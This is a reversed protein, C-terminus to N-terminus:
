IISRQIRAFKQQTAASSQRKRSRPSTRPEDAVAVVIGSPKENSVGMTKAFKRREKLRKSFSQASLAEAIELRAQMLEKANADDGGHERLYRRILNHQALRLGKAYEKMVAPVEIRDQHHPGWIWIMELNDPDYAVRVAVGNGYTRLIPLMEDTVYKLGHLTIGDHRLKRETTVALNLAIEQASPPLHPTFGQASEHWKKWPTTGIGQHPTQMYVDLLWKEFVHSFESITLVSHKLPDYDGRDTFKAFSTGPMKHVFSYNVTKLFREITGKFRPQRAPCFQLQIRLDFCALGVPDSHFEAGNDAVLLDFVGYCPWLHIVELGPVVADAPRKPLIAHRMARLVALTSTDNFSIYYGLPMRSFVDILMTLTPRGCPLGTKQDILFLDLPTHDIEVRELIRSVEVGRRTIRYRRDAAAKGENLLVIDYEPLRDLLRYLTRLGPMKLFDAELRFSNERDLKRQLRDAVQGISWGKGAKSVEVISEMLLDVVLQDTRPGKPGRADYRPVLKRPDGTARLAKYWRYLTTPSPPRRDGIAEAAHQIVPQLKEPTFAPRGGQVLADVYHKRRLAQQQLAPSLESLPRGYRSSEKGPVESVHHCATGDTASIRGEVYANLLERESTQLWKSTGHYELTVSGDALIREIHVWAGDLEFAVGKRLSFGSM